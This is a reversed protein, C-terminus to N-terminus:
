KLGASCMLSSAQWSHNSLSRGQSTMVIFPIRTIEDFMAPGKGSIRHSHLADGHDSTYIVLADPCCKDIADMVRGVEYDVFTNCGFFDPRNIKWQNSDQDLAKGAWVKIHEPKDELTDHVNDSLPFEYDAYMDYYKKPCLYPGHPEDYSVVLLFDDEGHKDLFDVARNSCRHGYMFEESPDDQITEHRRSKEREEPTLEDLYCRMDYWYDPDWGDPCIGHGFYDGGDLHWKGIYGARIGAASVRQGVTRFIDGLPLLNGWSGNSHPWMGTFISSRAPGCVPQCTYAREFRIGGAALRDLNPTQLGTDRYCNLMDWRQTDTMIFVVQRKEAM